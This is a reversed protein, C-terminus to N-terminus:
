TSPFANDGHPWLQPTFPQGIEACVEQWVREVPQNYLYPVYGIRFYTVIAPHRFYETYLEVHQYGRQILRTTAAAVVVFGLGCGRFQTSCGVWGLTGSYPSRGTYNHLSMATAAIQKTGTQTLLFWGDPLLRARCYDLRQQDFEWGCDRMLAVFASEDKDTCQRLQFGAPVVVTPPQQLKAPSWIMKLQPKLPDIM